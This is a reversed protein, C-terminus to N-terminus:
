KTSGASFVSYEIQIYCSMGLNKNTKATDKVRSVGLKPVNLPTACGGQPIKENKKENKSKVTYICM